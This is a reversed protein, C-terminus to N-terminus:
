RQQSFGMFGSNLLKPKGHCRMRGATEKGDWIGQNPEPVSSAVKPEFRGKLTTTGEQERHNLPCRHMEQDEKQDEPITVRMNLIRSGGKRNKLRRKGTTSLKTNGWTISIKNRKM